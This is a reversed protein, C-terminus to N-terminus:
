DRVRYKEEKKNEVVHGDQAEPALCRCYADGNNRRQCRGNGFMWSVPRGNNIRLDLTEGNISSPYFVQVLRAGRASEGDAAVARGAERDLATGLTLVDVQAAVGDPLPLVRLDQSFDASSASFQTVRYTPPQDRDWRGNMQYYTAGIRWFQTLGTVLADSPTAQKIDFEAEEALADELNRYQLEKRGQCSAEIVLPTNSPLFKGANAPTRAGAEFWHDQQRFDEASEFNLAAPITHQHKGGSSNAPRAALAHAQALAKAAASQTPASSIPHSSPESSPRVSLRCFIYLMVGIFLM